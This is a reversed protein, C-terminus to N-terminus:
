TCPSKRTPSSDHSNANQCWWTTFRSSGVFACFGLRRFAEEAVWAKWERDLDTSAPPVAAQGDYQGRAAQHARYDSYQQSLCGIRRVMTAPTNRKIEAVELLRKNGSYSMGLSNLIICQCMWTARAVSNDSEITDAIARRLLEQLADAFQATGPLKSYRCGIAAVALVLQWPQHAPHFTGQHLMPFIGQFHEFYLQVFCNMARFPPLNANTFDRYHPRSGGGGTAGSGSNTANTGGTALGAHRRLCRAIESYCASGISEVQALEEAELIDRTVRSMDPFAVINDQSTPDWETIWQHTIAARTDQLTQQPNPDAQIQNSAVQSVDGGNTPQPWTQIAPMAQSQSIIGQVASANGDDCTVQPSESVPTLQFQPVGTGFMMSPTDYAFTMNFNNDAPPELSQPSIWDMLSLDHSWPMPFDLNM